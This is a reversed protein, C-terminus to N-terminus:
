LFFITWLVHVNDTMAGYGLTGVRIQADKVGQHSQCRAGLAFMLIITNIEDELRKGEFKNDQDCESCTLKRGVTLRQVTSRLKMLRAVRGPEIAERKDIKALDILVSTDLWLM